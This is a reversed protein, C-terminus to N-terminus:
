AGPSVFQAGIQCKPYPPPSPKGQSECLLYTRFTQLDAEVEDDSPATLTAGSADRVYIDVSTSFFSIAPPTGLARILEARTAPGKFSLAPDIIAQVPGGATAVTLTVVVHYGWHVACSPDNVTPVDMRGYIWLKCAEEGAAIIEQAM